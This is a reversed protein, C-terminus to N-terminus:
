EKKLPAEQDLWIQAHPAFTLFSSTPVVPWLECEGVSEFSCRKQLTLTCWEQNSKKMLLSQCPLHRSQSQNSSKQLHPWRWRPAQVSPHENRAQWHNRKKNRRLQHNPHSKKQRRKRPRSLAQQAERRRKRRTSHLPLARQRGFTWAKVCHKPHKPKRRPM